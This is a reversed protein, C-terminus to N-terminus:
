WAVSGSGVITGSAGSSRALVLCGQYARRGHPNRRWVFEAGCCRPLDRQRVLLAAGVRLACKDGQHLCGPPIEVPSNSGESM